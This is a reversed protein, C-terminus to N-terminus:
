WPNLSLYELFIKARLIQWSSVPCSRSSPAHTCVEWQGHKVMYERSHMAFVELHTRASDVEKLSFEIIPSMAQDQQQPLGVDALQFSKLCEAKVAENRFLAQHVLYMPLTPPVSPGVSQTLSHPDRYDVKAQLGKPGLRFNVWSDKLSFATHQFQSQELHLLGHSQM